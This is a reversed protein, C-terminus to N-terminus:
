YRAVVTNAGLLRYNVGIKVVNATASVSEIFPFNPAFANANFALDRGFYDIHDYELKASWNRAFAYELGGALLLGTLTANSNEIGGVSDTEALGFRAAAAGVKGYILARDVAVGVRAAIDLSWPSRDSFEQAFPFAPQVFHYHDSLGTWAGEAEVGWVMRGTQVNCGAQGGGLVGGGNITGFGQFGVFADNLSGGGAHAGIYCGSWDQAPAPLRPLDAALPRDSGGLRYNIGATVIDTQASVTANFGPAFVNGVFQIDKGLYDVHDYELRASWHPAFAYEVGWGVLIGTLTANASGFGGGVDNESFGFRGLAVGAKGYLLAHDIAIGARAAADANWPNRTTITQAFVASSNDFRNRLSSWSGDGELGLVLTGTQINCGVQGGAVAGGGNLIDASTFGSSASFPDDEAGVGVHLGAYCGTWDFVQPPPAKTIPAKYFAARTPTGAPIPLDAGGFRYNIGATVLNTTASVTQNFSPPPNEGFAVVRGLYDVHDYELTASWHPAFAYEVGAGLLLGTLTGNGAAFLSAFTGTQTESFEFRGAAVGVKGYVLSRDFAVGVRAAVDASWRNRDGFEESFGPETFIFRDRLGSWSAEGELGWVIRGTQYDCGVQGGAIVGGGAVDVFPDNLSGGGGHVGVYCGTWNYITPAAVPAKTLMDAAAAPQAAAAAFLASTGLLWHKMARGAM